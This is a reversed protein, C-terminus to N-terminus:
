GRVNTLIAEQVGSLLKTGRIFLGGRKGALHVFCETPSAIAFIRVAGGINTLAKVVTGQMVYIGGVRMVVLHGVKVEDVGNTRILHQYSKASVIFRRTVPAAMDPLHDIASFM